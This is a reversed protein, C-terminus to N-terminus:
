HIAQHVSELTLWEVLSARLTQVTLEAARAGAKHGGMGDAVLYIRCDDIAVEAMRDENEKRVLGVHTGASHEWRFEDRIM